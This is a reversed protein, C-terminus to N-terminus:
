TDMKGTVLAVLNEGDDLLLSGGAKFLDFYAVVDLDDIPIDGSGVVAKAQPFGPIKHSGYGGGSKTFRFTAGVDVNSAAEGAVTQTADEMIYNVGVVSLDTLPDLEALYADIATNADAYVDKNTEIRKRTLHGMTDMLKVIAIFAM